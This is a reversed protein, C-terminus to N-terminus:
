RKPNKADSKNLLGTFMPFFNICSVRFGNGAGSENVGPMPERAISASVHKRRRNSKWASDQSQSVDKPHRTKWLLEDCDQAHM